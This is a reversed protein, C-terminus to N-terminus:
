YTPRHGTIKEHLYLNFKIETKTLVDKLSSFPLTRHSFKRYLLQKSIDFIDM